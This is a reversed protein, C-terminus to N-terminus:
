ATNRLSTRRAVCVSTRTKWAEKDANKLKM